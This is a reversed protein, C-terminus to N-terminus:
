SVTGPVDIEFTPDIMAGSTSNQLGQQATSLTGKRAREGKKAQAEADQRVEETEWWPPTRSARQELLRMQRLVATSAPVNSCHVVASM